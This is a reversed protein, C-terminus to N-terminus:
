FTVGIETHEKIVLKYFVWFTEPVQIVMNTTRGGSFRFNVFPKKEKM